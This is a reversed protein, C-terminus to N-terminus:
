KNGVSNGPLPSLVEWQTGKEGTTAVCAMGNPTVLLLTWGQRGALLEVMRGMGDLGRGIVREEYKTELRNKIEVYKGCAAQGSVGSPVFLFAAMMAASVAIRTM